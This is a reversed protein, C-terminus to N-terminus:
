CKNCFVRPLITFFRMVMEERSVFSIFRVRVSRIIATFATAIVIFHVDSWRLWRAKLKSFSDVRAFKYGQPNNNAPYAIKSGKPGGNSAWPTGFLHM